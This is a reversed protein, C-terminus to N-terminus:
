LEEHVPLAKGYDTAESGVFVAYNREIEEASLKGDSNDDASTILHKAEEEAMALDTEPLIWAKLEEKDLKGDNNKDYEEKFRKTEDKVWEPDEEDKSDPDKYDGLFEQLNVNGDKDRDIDEMTELIHLDAMEPSSEPHMFHGYEELSLKGDKNKDAADFRRKDRKLFDQSDSEEDKDKEDVEGFTAKVYEDWSIAGDKDLDKENIDTDVGDLLKKQFVGKVWEKLEEVSVFGDSSKDVKKALVKLRKKAEEPSLEDFEQKQDGLFAEHDYESSHEGEPFHDKDSLEDKHVKPRDSNKSEEDAWVCVCVFALLTVKWLGRM